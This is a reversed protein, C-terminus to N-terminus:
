ASICERKHQKWDQRQCEIM